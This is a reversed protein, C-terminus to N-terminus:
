RFVKGLEGFVEDLKSWVRDLHSEQTPTLTTISARHLATELAIIRRELDAIKEQVTIKM